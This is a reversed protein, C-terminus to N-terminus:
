KQDDDKVQSQLEQVQQELQQIRYEPSQKYEAEAQAQKAAKRAAQKEQGGHVYYRELILYVIDLILLTLFIYTTPYFHMYYSQEYVGDITKSTYSIGYILMTLFAFSLSWVFQFKKGKFFRIICIIALIFCIFIFALCIINVTYIGILSSKYLEYDPMSKYMNITKHMNFLCMILYLNLPTKEGEEVLPFCFLLSYLISLGLTIWKKNKYINCIFTKM